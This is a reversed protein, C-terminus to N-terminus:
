NAAATLDLLKDTLTRDAINGPAHPDVLISFILTQGSAATLYGSLARTEGLTGTKAFIRGKLPGTFRHILTGDTGALPLAAKYAAFWPQTAAYALLTTAARPTILDQSSLGSGDYFLFDNPALGAHLLFARVLRAGEMTSGHDCPTRHGLAHLYLEAHLNASLKLTYPIDQSLPLSTHSALIPPPLHALCEFSLNGNAASTEEPTLDSQLQNLFSAADVPLLHKARAPGVVTIGHALLTARFLQAAFAAPDDLAVEEVDPPSGAAITGYLRLTHATREIEIDTSSKAPGTQLQNLITYYALGSQELIASPHTGAAAPTITLRLQNDGVTLASVPASFGWVLDDQTWSKAYPEYPFLTDDGVIDGTITRVGRAVLQRALDELDQPHPRHTPTPSFPLDNSQFSPDGGGILTLDGTVTSGSLRGTVRTEFTRTSGLLAFAAATTFLKANSAPRFLQRDNVACLSDGQLTTISVGWHAQAVTPDELLAKIQPCFQPSATTTLLLFLLLRM